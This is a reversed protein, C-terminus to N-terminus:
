IRPELMLDATGGNAWGRIARYVHEAPRTHQICLEVLADRDGKELAEIMARHELVAREAYQTRAMLHCRFALSLAAYDAITQALFDNGSAAFLINHFQTNTRHIAMLNRNAVANKHAEQALKLRQILTSDAPMPIISAAKAHLFERVEGIQRVESESFDRVHAGRNAIRVVLGRKELEVLAQRVQHRTTHHRAIIDDEVLRERPQLKGFLIEHELEEVLDIEGNQM